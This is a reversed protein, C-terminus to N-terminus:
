TVPLYVEFTSGKGPESEVQIFGDHNEVVKKVISLGVGTGSYAEKGHLRAFIQFVKDQYQQEFGIGNDTVKISHYLKGNREIQSSTIDIIPAEDDKSYKLSNSVLNQFLQQLQRQYGQVIPLEGVHVVAQKAEIDLDLDELVLRLKDNLDVAHTQIPRENVYTYLLLDDILSAMRQTANEIRNFSRAGAESVQGSLQERLRETFFIIKRIPEKMDHSAAYAFEELQRNSRKLEKNMVQLSENAQALESTREEVVQEIKQMATKQATIDLVSGIFRIPKGQPNFYVKGKARVWRLVNDEAGITRYEVDYDGNSLSKDFSRSVVALVREQDDAHLGKIFDDEFTVPQHHSIGFLTRCRDDWHMGGKELDMDFTGLEAAEKSLRAQELATELQQQAVWQEHIDFGMGVYGNFDGNALTRPNGKFTHWRYEGDSRKVRAAPTLYPERKEFSPLYSEMVAPIDDEHLIGNWATGLAEEYTQGTYTLWTKNWYSVPALPGADLMFVFVPSEDALARFRAESEVLTQQNIKAEHIDISSGVYAFVEGNADFAPNAQSLVWRYEGNKQLMRHEMEYRQQNQIATMLASTSPEVDDPHQFPVWGITEIEQQTTGLFELTTKNVYEYSGDQKLMWILNPSADALLRFRSESEEIKQRALVQETVDVAMDMVGYVEGAANRMAKYAYDYYYTGLKGDVVLEAKAAKGENTIGTTFVDDLLQLFPQGELEPLAEKLPKGYVTDGKGWVALMPKNAIEIVMDRGTFVCTAVPAQEILSRFRGESEEIKKRSLVQETVDVAMHVIAYVEGNENRIPKYNFNYWGRQLQGDRLIDAAQDTAVYEVGTRYVNKLLETFPQGELEPLAEEFTKGVVSAPKDWLRLMAENITDIRIEPGLYLATAFPAEEILSRFKAESAALAKEGEKRKTINETTVVLMKGVKNAIFRFWHQMGEGQYWREFDAAKGTKAVEIFADLVGSEKVHPFEVGYLKGVLDTRGTTEITIDNVIILRFDEIEGESNYVEEFVTVSNPATNFVTRLLAENEKHVLESTKRNTVDTFFVGVKREEAAGIRIAYVQLWRNFSESKEEIRNTNGTLAVTGYFDLWKQEVNPAIERMTKGLVGTMGLHREFTPNTELFRCDVCRDGDLIIELTCYGQDMSEFLTRYKAESEEIVKRARVQETVNTAVMLVGSISGEKEFRPQYAFDVYITQLKGERFLEVAVENALYTKGTRIVEKLLDDFGQGIIEPLAVLLPKGIIEAPKRGALEGYFANAYEYVLDDDKGITAIGVPAEEFLRLLEQGSDEIGKPGIFSAATEMCTGLIGGHMGEDNLISSYSYTWYVDELAGNRYIPVLENEMWTAEGTKAVQQVLPCVTDWIEPWTEKAKAALAAPHKGEKGLSPRYADNYFQIMDDGWWLFMPLNSRLINSVTIRLSQPWQGPVGVPTQSWDYNRILAGMEGGGQLFPYSEKQQQTKV